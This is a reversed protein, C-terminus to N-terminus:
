AKTAHKAFCNGIFEGLIHYGEVNPHIGDDTHLLVGPMNPDELSSATDCFIMGNKGAYDRIWTNMEALSEQAQPTSGNYPLISGALIKINAMLAEQYIKELYFKVHDAPRGQFIDNVGAIVILMDPQHALVDTSFRKLIQDSREGSIGRNIIRLQPQQRALWYSYQSKENGTGDPPHEAPSLYEPHGATISDGLAVVTQIKEAARLSSGMGITCLLTLTFIINKLM